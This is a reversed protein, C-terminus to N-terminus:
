PFQFRFGGGEGGGGGFQFGGPFQFTGGGAGGDGGPFKFQGNPGTHFVFQQGGGGGGGGGFFPSGHFPQGHGGPGGGAGPPANPDDGADYRAKLEPNNLVEYAENIEAMKKEAQEKSIGTKIAKDPHHQKTLQRYARKIAREDADQSLGLTGYYDKQKSKTLATHAKNLLPQIKNSAQPHHERATNLVKIAAEYDSTSLLHQARSLLAPLSHPNHKLTETCYPLARKHNNMQSLLNSPNSPSLPRLPPPSSLPLMPRVETYAECTMETLLALLDDPAKKHITGAERLERIDDKVLQILGPEDGSKVLLKVAGNVQRKEMLQRIKKLGKEVAKERRFLRSCAKSDPDSHLCKRIQALGRETDALSYFLMASIQLHPEISGPAIQLVHALDSVGEHVEGREFRCRTRLQRLGLATSATLIAVGANSVCGEWDGKKEAEAALYAAGQAEELEAIERGEKKGAAEYDKRAGIWDANKSRIKARQILAGEFGPKITLVRDFDQSAQATKGLSLYTIGRKFIPLYNQPDHSIAVDFYTLADNYNGKALHANASSILSSIPTDQPIDSPSLGLTFPSSTLLTATLLLLSHM